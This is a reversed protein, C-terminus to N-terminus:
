PTLRNRDRPFLICERINKLDLLSMVLREIGMGFGGHPPMGYRFAKLYAKFDDPDLGDERLRKELLDHDHIRQSGSAIEIGNCFLDFSRSLNGEPMTYFPKADLPYKTIFYFSVGREKMVDGVAREEDSGLDSGWKIELGKKRIMDIAEDYRIRPLPLSPATIEIGLRSLEEMGEIRRCIHLIMRELIKMVDEENEIFAMEVDIATSENLHRRTNHEEARFYWGIEYVRDFGTAMLMQKYLQPSQALFADREFYKIRFLNTGGESASSIIKPTHVEIFGEKRLFERASDIIKDRILFIARVEERRLDLFRNDLRTDMEVNVKDVIGMPLPTEARSLIEVDKPIIEYGNRVKDNARCIGRVSIVSERSLSVLKKFVEPHEKKFTTIQLTGQRDRLIIFAISGLNRIDEVWGAVVVEKGDSDQSLEKSYHTRYPSM